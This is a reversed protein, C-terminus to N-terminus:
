KESCNCQCQQCNDDCPEPHIVISADAFKQRMDEEIKFCVQHAEQLPMRCNLTLHLDAYLRGGSIRARVEHYDSFASHHKALAEKISIMDEESVSKDMLEGVSKKFVGYATHFIVFSVLIAVISDFQHLGTIVVLVLGILVAISSYADALMDKATAEMAASNNKKAIRLGIIAIATNLVIAICTVTIGVSAMELEGGELLRMVAEYAIFVGASFILISILVGAVNEAKGHGYPHGKDPPATAIRIAILGVIAGALDICSHLADSKLAISNTVMAAIIKIAILLSIVAIFVISITTNNIFKIHKNHEKAM